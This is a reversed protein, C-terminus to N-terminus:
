QLRPKHEGCWAPLSTWPQASDVMDSGDDAVTAVIMPPYRHCHGWRVEDESETQERWYRCTSCDLDEATAPKKAM